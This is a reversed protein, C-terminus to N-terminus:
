SNYSKANVDSSNLAVIWFNKRVWYMKKYCSAERQAERKKFIKTKSLLVMRLNNKLVLIM